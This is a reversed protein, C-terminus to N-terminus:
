KTGPTTKTPEGTTGGTPTKGEEPRPEPPKMMETGQMMGPQQMMGGQMMGGMMGGGGMMGPQMMGPAHHSFGPCVGVGFAALIIGVFTFIFLIAAAVLIIYGCVKSFGCGKEGEEGHGHKGKCILKAGFFFAILDLALAILIGGM